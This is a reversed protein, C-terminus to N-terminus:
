DVAGMRKGIFKQDPKALTSAVPGFNMQGEWLGNTLKDVKGDQNDDSVRADGHIALSSATGDLGEIQDEIYAAAVTLATECASEYLGPSGIGVYDAIDYSLSYCDVYYILLDSLSDSWPDLAPILVNNLAFLLIRGYSLPLDHDGIMLRNDELSCTLGDAEVIGLDLEAMTYDYEVGDITYRIGTITHRAGLETGDPGGQVVQLESITGLKHAVQGFKDGLEVFTTVFGPAYDLILNNVFADLGPRLSNVADKVSTSDIQDLAMDILWTAPDNPDDTMDIISNVVTGVTGPLGSAMDFQSELEYTGVASLPPLPPEGQSVAIRWDVPTAFEAEAIIRFSAEEISGIVNITALGENDTVDSDTSINSGNAAGDIRFHVEGALPAGSEDHYKVTLTVQSNGDLFVNRDGVITLYANGEVPPQPGPGGETDGACAATALIGAMVASLLGNKGSMMM